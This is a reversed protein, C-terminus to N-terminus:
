PSEQRSRGQTIRALESTRRKFGDTAAQVDDKLRGWRFVAVLLITFNCVGLVYLGHHLGIFPILLYGAVYSVAVVAFWREVTATAFTALAGFMLHQGHIHEFPDKELLLYGFLGVLNGAMATLALMGIARNLKTRTMSERAWIAFAVVVLLLATPVIMGRWDRYLEVVGADVLANMVIPVVTWVTAVVSAVFFRTRRGSSWDHESQLRKLEASESAKRTRAASVKAVLEAPPSPLEGLMTHAAEPEGRELLFDVMAAVTKAVGDRAGPHESWIELASGFAARCEVFKRFVVDTRDDASERAAKM